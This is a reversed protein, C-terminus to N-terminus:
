PSQTSDAPGIGLTVAGTFNRFRLTVVYPPAGSVIANGQVIDSNVVHQHILVNGAERIELTATGGGYGVIATGIGIKKSQLIPGYQADSTFSRARVSYGLGQSSVGVVPTNSPAGFHSDNDDNGTFAEVYCASALAPVCVLAFRSLTQLRM